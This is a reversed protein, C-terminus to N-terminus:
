PWQLSGGSLLKIIRCLERLRDAPCVYKHYSSGRRECGFEKILVLEVVEATRGRFGLLRGPRLTVYQGKTREVLMCIKYVPCLRM